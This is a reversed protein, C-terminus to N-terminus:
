DLARAFSQQDTQVFTAHSRQLKPTADVTEDRCCDAAEGDVRCREGVEGAGAPSLQNDLRRGICHARKSAAARAASCLLYSARNNSTTPNCEELSYWRHDHSCPSALTDHHAPPPVSGISAMM